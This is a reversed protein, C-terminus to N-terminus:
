LVQWWVILGVVAWVSLCYALMAVVPWDIRRLTARSPLACVVALLAFPSWMPLTV